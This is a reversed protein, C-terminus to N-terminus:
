EGALRTAGQMRFALVECRVVGSRLTLSQEKFAMSPEDAKIEVDAAIGGLDWHDELCAKVADRWRNMVLLSDDRHFAGGGTGSKGKVYIQVDVKYQTFVWGDGANGDADRGRLTREMETGGDDFIGIAPCNEGRIDEPEYFFKLRATDPDNLYSRLHERFTTEFAHTIENSATDAM